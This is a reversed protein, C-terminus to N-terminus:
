MITIVITLADHVVSDAPAVRRSFQMALFQLRGHVLYLSYSMAGGILLVRSVAGVAQRQTRLGRGFVEDLGEAAFVVLGFLVAFSTAGLVSVRDAFVVLAVMAGAVVFTAWRPATAPVLRSPRVGREFLFAIAVGVAFMPWYPLFLGSVYISPVFVTPISAFT